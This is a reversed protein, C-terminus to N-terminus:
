NKIAKKRAKEDQLQVLASVVSGSYESAREGHRDDVNYLDNLQNLYDSIPKSWKPSGPLQSRCSIYGELFGRRASEPGSRWFEPGSREGLAKSNTPTRKAGFRKFVQQVPTVRLAPTSTYHDTIKRVYNDWTDTFILRPKADDTLCDDLAFLFGVKEMPEAIAWWYGDFRVHLHHTAVGQAKVDCAFLPQILAIILIFFGSKVRNSVSMFM